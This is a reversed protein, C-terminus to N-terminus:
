ATNKALAKLNGVSPMKKFFLMNGALHAANYIGAFKCFNAQGELFLARLVDVDNGSAV